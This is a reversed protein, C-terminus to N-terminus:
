IKELRALENVSFGAALRAARAFPPKVRPAGFDRVLQIFTDDPDLGREACLWHFWRTGIAVHGIEDREIIQLIEMARRDGTSRLKEMLAPTADLGRAELVRPVLAMRVLADHATARAMEWLGDHAEFDGYDFGLTRLHTRLLDFHYAEERAVRSWDRYYAAPLDRFRDIADLALNIANFEIHALAHILAARGKATTMPFRTVKLPSVLTPLAPRGPVDCARHSAEEAGEIAVPLRAIRELKADVDSESLAAYVHSFFNM